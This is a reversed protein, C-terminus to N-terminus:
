KASLRDGRYFGGDRKESLEAVMADALKVLRGSICAIDDLLDTNNSIVRMDSAAIGVLRAMERELRRSLNMLVPDKERFDRYGGNSEVMRERETGPNEVVRFETTGDGNRRLERARSSAVDRTDYETGGNGVVSGDRDLEVVRYKDVSEDADGRVGSAPGPVDFDRELLEVVDAFVDKDCSKPNLAVICYTRGDLDGIRSVFAARFMPDLNMGYMDFALGGGVVPFAAWTRSVKAGAKEAVTNSMESIYDAIEEAMEEADDGTFAKGALHHPVAENGDITVVYPMTGIVNRGDVPDPMAGAWDNGTDAENMSAYAEAISRINSESSYQM